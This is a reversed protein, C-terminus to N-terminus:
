IPIRKSHKMPLVTCALLLCFGIWFYMQTSYTKPDENAYHMADEGFIRKEIVLQRSKLTPDNRFLKHKPM